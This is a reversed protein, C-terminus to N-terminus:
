KGSYMLKGDIYINITELFAWADQKSKFDSAGLIKGETDKKTTTWTKKDEKIVPETWFTKEKTKESM